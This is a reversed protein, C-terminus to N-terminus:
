MSATLYMLSGIMSRYLHVDVSDAEEDKILAKNPEMPTSVTNVTAFDFKKLIDDMHKDQSIFIGDKKQQVQLGLLFTLERISSMQFRKHMLGECEDCLSKKTSGFIIDDVYVHVLLIDGKDKKIFLTKDITGRRFRNSDIRAVPAFVEDYDIRKKPIVKHCGTHGQKLTGFRNFHFQLAEEANGEIGIPDEQDIRTTPIPSVNMTTELNNLDADAGMDKDDYANGFIRTDDMPTVNSIPLLTFANKFPSFKEFLHKEFTNSAEAANVPSSPDDNTFSLGACRVPTVFLNMLHRTILSLSWSGLKACLLCIIEEAWFTTPLKFDVFLNKGAEICHKIRRKAVGFRSLLKLLLPNGKIGPPKHQKGKQCAVYSHNNEFIKSPLGRILNGKVLKNINKFNIHGLRRHWLNSENITAKAFLCTLGKTPVVSKLDVSYINDKRPVRLLVQSEDLLKFDYSLVLCETDTYLVNNKKDCIQSVSTFLVSNKKDCMQSVSFLNFKLEKVFYVDEFDLKGTRIKGKGTIKGGKSSGGFAVFGGDIDQYDLLYFKNGTMHRSCRSDFIGQDQLAYQPNGFPKPAATNIPRAASAPAAARSSSQRAASIPVIGSKTLVATRKKVNNLVPKQVMNKDHFDCDKILHNFSGCVFCAKKTFEFSNRNIKNDRPNQSFKRRKEVTSNRANVFEIKEFSSKVIKKVEKPAFVNEDESDSETTEINPVSTITESVKSKYVSDDLWAFSLDPRAPKFNGTFPPPVAHYGESKKFKNKLNKISIDKVQVDYKLFAISEEYSAENKEHVVIRAELSELGM